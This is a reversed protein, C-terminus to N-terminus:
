SSTKPYVKLKIYVRGSAILPTGIPYVSNAYVTFALYNLNTRTDPVGANTVGYPFRAATHGFYNVPNQNLQGLSLPSGAFQPPARAGFGFPAAYPLVVESTLSEAGGLACLLEPAFPITSFPLDNRLLVPPDTRVLVDGIICNENLTVFNTYFPDQLYAIDNDANFYLTDGARMGSVDLSATVYYYPKRPALNSRYVRHTQNNQVTSNFSNSM